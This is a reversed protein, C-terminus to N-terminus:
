AKDNDAEKEALKSSKSLLRDIDGAHPSMIFAGKNREDNLKTNFGTTGIEDAV